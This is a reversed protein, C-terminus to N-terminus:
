RLRTKVINRVRSMVRQPQAPIENTESKWIYSVIGCVSRDLTVVVFRQFKCIYGASTEDPLTGFNSAVFPLFLTGEM